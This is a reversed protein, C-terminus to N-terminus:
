ITSVDENREKRLQYVTPLFDPYCMLVERRENAVLLLASTVDSACKGYSILNLLWMPDIHTIVTANKLSGRLKVLTYM